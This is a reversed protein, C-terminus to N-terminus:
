FPCDEESYQLFENQETAELPLEEDAIPQPGLALYKANSSQLKARKREIISQVHEPLFQERRTKYSNVNVSVVRLNGEEYGKTADVRDITLVVDKDRTADYFGFADVLGKWYDVTITFKLHRGAAHDRLTCYDSIQKNRCRWRRM